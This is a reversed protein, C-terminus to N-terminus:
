ASCGLVARGAKTDDYAQDDSAQPPVEQEAKEADKALVTSGKEPSMDCDLLHGKVGAKGKMGGGTLLFDAREVFDYGGVLGATAEDAVEVFLDLIRVQDAGEAAM